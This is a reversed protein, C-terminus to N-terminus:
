LNKKNKMWLQIPSKSSGQSILCEGFKSHEIIQITFAYNYGLSVSEVKQTKLDIIIIYEGTGGFLYNNKSVCYSYVRYYKKIDLKIKNLLKGSHFDWIRIFHDESSEIFKLVDDKDFVSISYQEKNNDDAYKYYLKSSSYDYSRPYSVNGTVIFNKSLNKDYYSDIYRTLDDYNYIEKFKNGNLDYVKTEEFINRPENSAVIFINHDENLFCASLVVSEEYINKINCICEYNKINWVKINNDKTSVSLILDRKNIEDLYHRFNSIHTNHAKKIENIKKENILDFSIISCDESAYILYLIKDISKFSCFSNVGRYYPVFADKTINKLLHYGSEEPISNDAM